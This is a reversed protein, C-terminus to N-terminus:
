YKLVFGTYKGGKISVKCAQFGKYEMCQKLGSKSALIAMKSPLVKMSGRVVQMCIGSTGKWKGACGM